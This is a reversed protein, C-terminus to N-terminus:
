KQYRSSAPPSLLTVITPAAHQERWLAALVAQVHAPDRGGRIVNDDFKAIVAAKGLPTVDSGLPERLKRGDAVTVEIWREDSVEYRTRQAIGHIDDDLVSDDSFADLTVQGRALACAICYYRSFKGHYGSAPSRKEAAPESANAIQAEVDGYVVEVIDAPQLDHRRRLELAGRIFPHEGFGAPFEKMATDAIRWRQGLEDLADVQSPAGGTFVDFFGRSDELFGSGGPFGAIAMRAALIGTAAAHGVNLMKTRLGRQIVQSSGGTLSAAIAVATAMCADDAGLLRAAVIAAGLAGCVATPHFGHSHFRSHWDSAGLEGLLTVVELGIATAVLLEPGGADVTTGVAFVTSVIPATPHVLSAQHTDDFDLAHILAANAFAGDSENTLFGLFTAAGGPPRERLLRRLPEAIPDSSAAMGVGIADLVHLEIDRRIANPVDDLEVGHAFRALRQSVSGLSESSCHATDASTM